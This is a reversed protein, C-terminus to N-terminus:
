ALKLGCHKAFHRFDSDRTILPVGNDICSQAILADGLKAKLGKAALARRSAGARQWYGEHITLLAANPLIADLASAGSLIETVVVPPLVLQGGQIAQLVQLVDGGDEENLFSVLSSSDAAIM